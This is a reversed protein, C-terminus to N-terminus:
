DDPSYGCKQCVITEYVEDFKEDFGFPVTIFQHNCKEQWKRKKRGIEDTFTLQRAVTQKHDM